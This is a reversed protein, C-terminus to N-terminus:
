PIGACDPTGRRSFLLDLNTLRNLERITLGEPPYILLEGPAHRRRALHSWERFLGCIEAQGEPTGEPWPGEPRALVGTAVNKREYVLAPPQVELRRCEPKAPSETYVDGDITPCAYFDGRAAAPMSLVCLVSLAVLHRLPM